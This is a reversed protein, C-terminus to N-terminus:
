SPTVGTTPRTTSTSTRDPLGTTTPIKATHTAQFQGIDLQLVIRAPWRRRLPRWNQRCRSVVTAPCTAGEGDGAIVKAGVGYPGRGPQIMDTYTVVRGNTDIHSFDVLIDYIDDM